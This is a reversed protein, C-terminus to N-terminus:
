VIEFLGFGLGASAKSDPRGEGIGVQLGVRSILNVMDNSSLMGADYKITLVAAWERYMPRCRLDIRGTANRTPAVWQEAEGESLRVLPAGDVRDFGDAVVMFALKAHTM